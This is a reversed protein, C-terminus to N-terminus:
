SGIRAHLTWLIDQSKQHYRISWFRKKKLFFYKISYILFEAVLGLIKLMLARYKSGSYPIDMTLSDEVCLCILSVKDVVNFASSTWCHSDCKQTPNILAVFVASIVFHVFTLLIIIFMIFCPYVLMYPTKVLPLSLNSLCSHNSTTFHLLDSYSKHSSITFSFCSSYLYSILPTSLRTSM